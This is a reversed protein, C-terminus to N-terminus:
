SFDIEHRKRAKFVTEKENGNIKFREQRGCARDTINEFDNGCFRM